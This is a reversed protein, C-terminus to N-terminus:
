IKKEKLWVRGEFSKFYLERKYAESKTEFAEFYHILFPCRHKISKTKGANHEELRKCLNSTHGFYYGEDKLSKLIYTYFKQM